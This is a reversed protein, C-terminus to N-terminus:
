RVGGNRAPPFLKDADDGLEGLAARIEAARRAHYAVLSQRSAELELREQRDRLIARVVLGTAAALLILAPILLWTM